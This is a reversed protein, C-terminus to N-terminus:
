LVTIMTCTGRPTECNLVYVRTRRSADTAYLQNFAANPITILFLTAKSNKRYHWKVKTDSNNAPVFKLLKWFEHNPLYQHKNLWSPQFQCFSSSPYPCKHPYSSPDSDPETKLLRYLSDRSLQKLNVGLAQLKGIDCEVPSTSSEGEHSTSAGECTTSPGSEDGEHSKSVSPTNEPWNTLASDSSPGVLTYNQNLPIYLESFSHMCVHWWAIFM